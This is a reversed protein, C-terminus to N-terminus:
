RQEEQRGLILGCTVSVIASSVILAFAAAEHPTKWVWLAFTSAAFEILSLWFLAILVRRVNIVRNM